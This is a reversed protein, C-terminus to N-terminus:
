LTSCVSVTIINDLTNGALQRSLIAAFRVTAWYALAAPWCILVVQWDARIWSARQYCPPSVAVTWLSGSTRMRSVSDSPSVVACSWRLNQFDWTPLLIIYICFQPFLSVHSVQTSLPSQNLIRSPCRGVCSGIKMTYRLWKLHIM